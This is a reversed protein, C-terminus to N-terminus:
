KHLPITQGSQLASVSQAADVQKSNVESVMQSLMSGFSSGVPAGAHIEPAVGLEAPMQIGGAADAPPALAASVEPPLLSDLSPMGGSLQSPNIAPIPSM